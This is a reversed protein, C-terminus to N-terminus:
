NRTTTEDLSLIVNAVATWAAHQIPDLKEDRPSEGTALLQAAAEPNTQFRTRQRQFLDVLEQQEGVTAPRSTAIRFMFAAITEASDRHERMGREALWRAAEIALPDNMLVLSQLPTNSRSRVAVCTERTPADFIALAPPPLTRKWFSYMGRRYLDAGHSQHYEQATFEAPNFSVEEWLGGPQYPYVSPGGIRQDLLGSTFLLSDRLMEAEMRLRPARALWRNDPDRELLERNVRSSQRYTASSVIL